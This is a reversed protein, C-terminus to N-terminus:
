KAARAARRRSWNYASRARSQPSSRRDVVYLNMTEWVACVVVGETLEFARRAEARLGALSFVM